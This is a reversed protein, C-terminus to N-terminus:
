SFRNTAGGDMFEMMEMERRDSGKMIEKIRGNKNVREEGMADIYRWSEPYPRKDHGMALEINAQRGQRISNIWTHAEEKSAVAYYRTDGATTISFYGSCSSPLDQAFVIVEHDDAPQLGYTTLHLPKSEV